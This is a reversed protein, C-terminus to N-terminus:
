FYGWTTTVNEEGSSWTTTVNEEGSSWTTEIDEVYGYSVINLASVADNENIFGFTLLGMGSFVCDFSTM